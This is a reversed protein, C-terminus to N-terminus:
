RRKIYQIAYEGNFDKPNQISRLIPLAREDFEELFLEDDELCENPELGLKRMLMINHMYADTQRDIGRIEDYEVLDSSIAEPEYGGAKINDMDCFKAKRTKKNILINRAAVDAYIIDKFAYYDLVNKIYDSYYIIDERSKCTSPYAFSLDDEDFTIEYGFITGDCSLTSVPQVSDELNMQHLLKIKEYKSDPMESLDRFNYFCSFGKQKGLFFKYLTHTDYGHCIIAEGGISFPSMLMLNIHKRPLEINPLNRM